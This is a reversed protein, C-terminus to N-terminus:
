CKKTKWVSERTNSKKSKIEERSKVCNTHSYHVYISSSFWKQHNNSKILSFLHFEFNEVAKTESSSTSVCWNKWDRSSMYSSIVHLFTWDARHHRHRSKYHQETINRERGFFFIDLFRHSSREQCHNIIKLWNAPWRDESRDHNIQM